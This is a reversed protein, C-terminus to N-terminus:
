RAEIEFEHACGAADSVMRYRWLGREEVSVGGTGDNVASAAFGVSTRTGDPGIRSLEVDGRWGSGAFTVQAVDDPGDVDDLQVVYPLPLPNGNADRVTLSCAGREGSDPLAACGALVVVFVAAPVWM